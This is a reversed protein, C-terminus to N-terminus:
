TSKRLNIVLAKELDSLASEIKLPNCSADVTFDKNKWKSVTQTSKNFRTVL